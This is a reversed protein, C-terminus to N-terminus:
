EYPPMIEVGVPDHARDKRGKVTIILTRVVFIELIGTM